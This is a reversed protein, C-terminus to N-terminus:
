TTEYVCARLQKSDNRHLYQSLCVRTFDLCFSLRWGVSAEAIDELNNTLNACEKPSFIFLENSLNSKWRGQEGDKTCGEM